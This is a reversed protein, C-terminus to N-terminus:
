RRKGLKLPEEGHWDISDMPVVSLSRNRYITCFSERCEVLRAHYPNSTQILVTLFIGDGRELKSILAQATHKGAWLSAVVPLLLALSSVLFILLWFNIVEYIASATRLASADDGKKSFLTGSASAAREAQKAAWNKLKEFAWIAGTLLAIAVFPALFSVLVTWSGLPSLATLVGKTVVFFGFYIYDEASAGMLSSPIGLTSWYSEAFIRGMVYFAPGGFLVLKTLIEVATALRPPRVSQLSAAPAPVRQDAPNTDPSMPMSCRANREVEYGAM